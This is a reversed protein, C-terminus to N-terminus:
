NKFTHINSVKLAVTPLKYWSLRHEQVEKKAGCTLNQQTPRLQDKWIENSLKVISFAFLISQARHPPLLHATVVYTNVPLMTFSDNFHTFIALQNLYNQLENVFYLASYKFSKDWSAVEQKYISYFLDNLICMIEISHFSVKHLSLALMSINKRRLM